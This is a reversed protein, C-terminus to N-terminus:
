RRGGTQDRGRPADAQIPLLVRFVTRWPESDCEVIGGHDGIIKAVLPLGLGAGKPKTTVFPDFLYPKLDDPVGPGNDRVCVELPLQLREPSGPVAVRVGPRYATSLVIEGGKAPVAEAANKVLNLLVQVLADRDGPVPPLSPDYEERFTINRAFGSRALRTVHDLVEHINVAERELTRLEGFAEMRDVLKCIRDAEDCILRTLAKDGPGVAAEILQAAGRIGSLPNKIEHALVAAMGNISRAASRHTLHRDMKDAIGREQLLILVAGAMEHVPVVQAHVPRPGQGQGPPGLDVDHESFSVETRRAMRVLGVIPSGFPVLADLRSRVLAAAGAGFFQEAAANAFIVRDAADVVLMPSPLAQLLAERDLARDPSLGIVRDPALMDARDVAHDPAYQKSLNQEDKAVAWDM